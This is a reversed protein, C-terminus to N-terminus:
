SSDCTSRGTLFSVFRKRGWQTPNLKISQDEITSGSMKSGHVAIASVTKQM